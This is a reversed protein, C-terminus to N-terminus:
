ADERKSDGARIRNLGDRGEVAEESSRQNRGQECRDIIAVLGEIVPFRCMIKRM